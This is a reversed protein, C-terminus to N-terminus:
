GPMPYPRIDTASLGLRNACCGFQKSLKM